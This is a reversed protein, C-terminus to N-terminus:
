PGKNYGKTLWEVQRTKSTREFKGKWPIFEGFWLAGWVDAHTKCVMNGLV